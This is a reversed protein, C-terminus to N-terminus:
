LFHCCTGHIRHLCTWSGLSHLRGQVRRIWQGPHLFLYGMILEVVEDRIHALMHSSIWRKAVQTAAGYVPFRASLTAIVAAHAAGQILYKEAAENNAGSASSNIHLRFVYGEHLVDTAEETVITPTAYSSRLQEAIKLAMAAKTKTMAM